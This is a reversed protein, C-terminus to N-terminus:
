EKSAEFCNQFCNPLELLIDSTLTSRGHKQFTVLSCQKILFSACYASALAKTDWDLDQYRRSWALFAALTGALLDGQGGCRRPSAPTDCILESDGLAIRDQYGKALVGTKLSHALNLANGQVDMKLLLRQFENRNPTLFALPYGIICDPYQEVAYLGDADIVLPLKADQALLMIRQAILILHPARSLGPGIVLCDLRPFYQQISEVADDVSEILLPHVILEPSYSKIATAADPTCFVHALDVGIRLASM